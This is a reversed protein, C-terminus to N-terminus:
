IHILSLIELTHAVARHATSGGPCAREWEQKASRAVKANVARVGQRKYM